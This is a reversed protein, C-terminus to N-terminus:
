GDMGSLWDESLEKLGSKFKSGRKSLDRYSVSMTKRFNLGYHVSKEKLLNDLKVSYMKIRDFLGKHDYEGREILVAESKALLMSANRPSFTHTQALMKKGLISKKRQYNKIVKGSKDKRIISSAPEIRSLQDKVSQISFPKGIELVDRPISNPKKIEIM